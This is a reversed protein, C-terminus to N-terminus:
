ANPSLDGPLVQMGKIETRDLDLHGNPGLKLRIEGGEETIEEVNTFSMDAMSGHRYVFVDM